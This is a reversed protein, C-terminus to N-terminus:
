RKGGRKGKKKRSGGPPRSPPPNVPEDPEQPEERRATERKSPAVSPSRAAAAPSGILGGLLNQPQLPDWGLTLGMRAIEVPRTLM